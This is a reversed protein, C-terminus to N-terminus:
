PFSFKKNSISVGHSKDGQYITLVFLIKVLKYDKGRAKKSPEETVWSVQWFESSFIVSDRGYSALFSMYEFAPYSWYPM